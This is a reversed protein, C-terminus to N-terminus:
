EGEMETAELVRLENTLPDVKGLRLTFPQGPRIKEGLQERNARVYIQVDPLALTVFPGGSEVVIGTWTRTRCNQKIHLLKWYRPRFRQIRGAAEARSNIEPLRHELEARTWKPKGTELFHRVQALNVLDVYRRLPSTITAYARAGIAAHPRPATELSTPPLHKVVHHIDEPRIWIGALERPLVADQTRFCLPIGAAAAYGAASSNALIMLESVLLQARPYQGSPVLDVLPEEAPGSLVIDPEVREIIAAGADVRRARLREALAFGAAIGPGPGSGALEAEVDAYTRNAAVTAWGARMGFSRTAGAPDIDWEMVLAPRPKKEVLSFVDAAFAEPMMHSTGEPLYVSSARRMVARDLPADFRWASAPDALALRVLFGGDPLREAFFADDIDRTTPSDVSVFPTAESERALGASADRIEGIEGAFEGSWADGPEYGAQDLLYNHHPPVVGWQEALVLPLFPHEPLGKRLTGWLVALDSSEPDAVLGLLLEKLKAAAEPDLRAALRAADRKEGSAWATWLERFFGQGATVVKERELALAQEALRREVVEAPYVEFKPPHFKFHTKCALLARGLGAVQDTDPREWLLGAFWSAPEERVEGQALEWIEMADVESAVRTRRAELTCLRELMGGRDRVADDCPGIWPLVRAAPLKTERKHITYLRLRGGSEELVWALQPENGQMFEVVCGPGPYQQM